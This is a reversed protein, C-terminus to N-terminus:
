VRLLNLQPFSNVHLRPFLLSTNGVWRGLEGGGHVWEQRERGEAHSHQEMEEPVSQFQLKPQDIWEGSCLGCGLMLLVRSTGRSKNDKM